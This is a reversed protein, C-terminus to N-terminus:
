AHHGACSSVGHSEQGGRSKNLSRAKHIAILIPDDCHKRFRVFAPDIWRAKGSAPGGKVWFAASNPTFFRVEKIEMWWTGKGNKKPVQVRLGVLTKLSEEDYAPIAAAPQM